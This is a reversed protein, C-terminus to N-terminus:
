GSPRPSAGETIACLAAAGFGVSGPNLSKTVSRSLEKPSPKKGPGVGRDGIPPRWLLAAGSFGSSPIAAPAAAEEEAEAGPPSGAKEEGAASFTGGGM